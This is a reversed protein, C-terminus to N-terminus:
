KSIGRGVEWFYMDVLKMVPYRIGNEHIRRQVGHFETAHNRYFECLEAFHTENFGSFALGRSRLGKVFYWDYAPTCGFAALLIKTVLTDTVKVGKRRGNVTGAHSVYATRLAAVLAFIPPLAAEAERQSNFDIRLLRDYKPKLLERVAYRHIRYDKWLLFGSGSGRYMGWSALYFGLQLASHEIGQEFRIRKRQRFWRFCHGWSRYRHHEDGELRRHFQDITREISTM